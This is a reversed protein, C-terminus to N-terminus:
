ATTVAQYRRALPAILWREGAMFLFVIVLSVALVGSTDSVSQAQMMSFGLGSKAGFLEAVLTIKWAVGYSIRLSAMLYPAMLPLVVLRFVRWRRTSFSEGMEELERDLNRVGESANILCFPVLIAVQIFIVTFDSVKFWITALLVWGIAPFSNFFPRIRAHVIASTAPVLRPLFALATGLAMSIALALAVRIASSLLDRLFKPDLALEGMRALVEVPGPLIYPSFDRAGLWWLFIVLLTGAEALIRGTV